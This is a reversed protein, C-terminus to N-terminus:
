FLGPPESPGRPSSRSQHGSGRLSPPSVVAKAASASRRKRRWGRPRGRERSTPDRATLWGTSLREFSVSALLPESTMISLRSVKISIMAISHLSLGCILLCQVFQYIQQRSSVWVPSCQSGRNMGEDADQSLDNNWACIESLRRCHM